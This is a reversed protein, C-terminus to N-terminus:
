KLKYIQVGHFANEFEIRDVYSRGGLKYLHYKGEKMYKYFTSRTMLGADFIDQIPMYKFLTTQKINIKDKKEIFDRMTAKLDNVEQLITDLINPPTKPVM